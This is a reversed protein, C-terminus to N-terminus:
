RITEKIEGTEVNEACRTSSTQNQLWLVTHHAEELWQLKQLFSWNASRLLQQKEHEEFGYTWDTSNMETSNMETSNM